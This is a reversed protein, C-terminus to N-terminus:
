DSSVSKMFCGGDFGTMVRGTGGGAAPGARTQRRNLFFRTASAPAQDNQRYEERRDERRDQRRMVGVFDVDPLDELRRTEFM